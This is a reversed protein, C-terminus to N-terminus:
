KKAKKGKLEALEKRLAEIKTKLEDCNTESEELEFEILRLKADSEEARAQYYEAARRVSVMEAQQLNRELIEKHMKRISKRTLKVDGDTVTSHLPPYESREIGKWNGSEHSFSYSETLKIQSDIM